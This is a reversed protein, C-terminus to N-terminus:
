VTIERVDYNVQNDGDECSLALNEEDYEHEVIWGDGHIGVLAGGATPDSWYHDKLDADVQDLYKKLLQERRLFQLIMLMATYWISIGAMKVM